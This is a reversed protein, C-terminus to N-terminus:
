RLTDRVVALLDVLNFPKGLFADAAVERATREADPAATQVVIPAHPGPQSRYARIFAWGDM